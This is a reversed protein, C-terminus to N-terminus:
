ELAGIRLISGNVLFCWLVNSKRGGCFLHDCQDSGTLWQDRSGCSSGEGALDYAVTRHEICSPVHIGNEVDVYFFAPCLNLGTDDSVFEIVVELFM